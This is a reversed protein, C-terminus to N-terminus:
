KTVIMKRYLNGQDTVLNYLYIGSSFGTAKWSVLHHGASENGKELVAVKEGKINFVALEISAASPLYYSITTQPNFPNPYNQDLIPLADVLAPAVSVDNVFSINMDAQATNLSADRATVRLIYDGNPFQESHFCQDADDGTFLSDGNSNTIIHYYERNEYNGESFCINDRSYITNLVMNDFNGSIYTDLPMDFKYSFQSYLVSDPDSAPHLSYSIDWVDIKWTSNCIDHCKAIIDFSGSLNDPDLYVGGQTRFAFIDDNITTEFVPPTIDILNVVDVQPNDITWWNGNWVQGTDQLRAFHIHTFDAVSWPYLTGLLEGAYVSDGVAVTISGQNLHAYLYGETTEPTDEEAIAIRWYADGGTTLVAKVYGPRVAYVEQYDDGLFDVGPHLYPSFGYQQIEGYSNGVNFPYAVQGYNLPCPIPSHTRTTSKLITAAELKIYHLLDETKWLNYNNEDKGSVKEVIFLHDDESIVEFIRGSFNHIMELENEHLRYLDNIGCVLLDGRFIILDRVIGPLPYDTKNMTIKHASQDWIVPFGNDAIIFKHSGPYREIECNWLNICVIDKGDYFGAYSVDPSFDLNIVKAFAMERIMIGSDSYIRIISPVNEEITTVTLYGTVTRYLTNGQFTLDHYIILYESNEFVIEYEMIDAAAILEIHGFRNLTVQGSLLLIQSFVLLFFVKYKKM